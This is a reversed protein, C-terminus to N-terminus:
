EEIAIADLAVATDMDVHDLRVTGILSEPLEDDYDGSFPIFISSGQPLTGQILVALDVTLSRTAGQVLSIVASATRSSAVDIDVEFYGDGSHYLQKLKRGM